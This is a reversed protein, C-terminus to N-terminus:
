GRGASVSTVKRLEQRALTGQLTVTDQLTRRQVDSLIISIRRAEVLRRQEMERLRRRRGRGGRALVVIGAVMKNRFM